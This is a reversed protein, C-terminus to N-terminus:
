AGFMDGNGFKAIWELRTLKGDHNIDGQAFEKAAANGAIYEDADIIGDGNTDYRGTYGSGYNPM